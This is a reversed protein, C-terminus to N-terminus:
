KKCKCKKVVKKVPKRKSTAKSAKKKREQVEFELENAIKRRVEPNIVGKIIWKGKTIPHDYEDHPLVDLDKSERLSLFEKVGQRAEDPSIFILNNKLSERMGYEGNKNIYYQEERDGAVYDGADYYVVYVREQEM